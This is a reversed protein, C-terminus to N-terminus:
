ARSDSDRILAAAEARTRADLKRMSSRIHSEVTPVRIGLRDAIRRSTMGEAVLMLVEHERQTIGVPAEGSDARLRRGGPPQLLLPVIRQRLTVWGVAELEDILRQFESTARDPDILDLAEALGLHYRLRHRRWGSTSIAREFATVADDVQGAQLAALGDIEADYAETIGSLHLQGARTIPANSEWQARALTAGFQPGLLEYIGHQLAREVFPIAAGAQGRGLLTEARVWTSWSVGDPTMRGDLQDLLDDAEAWAGTDNLALARSWVTVDWSGSLLGPRALLEETLTLVIDYESEWVMQDARSARLRAATAHHGGALLEEEGRRTIERAEEWRGLNNLAVGEAAWSELGAWEHGEADALTRARRALEVAQETLNVAIVAAAHVYMEADAVGLEEAREILSPMEDPEPTAWLRHYGETIKLRVTSREDHRRQALALGRELVSAAEDMRHTEFLGRSCLRLAEPAHESDESVSAGLDVVAAYESLAALQGMAELVALDRQSGELCQAALAFCRVREVPREATWTARLALARAKTQEGAAAWHRAAEGPDDLHQAVSRHVAQLADAALDGLVADAILAHRVQVGDRTETVLGMGLLQHLDSRALDLRAPRELVAVRLLADRAAPSLEALRARMALALESTDDRAHALGQILLPNGGARRAVSTADTATLSPNQERALAAADDEALPALDIVVFRAAALRVRM